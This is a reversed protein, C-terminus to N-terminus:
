IVSKLDHKQLRLPLISTQKGKVLLGKMVISVHIDNSDM